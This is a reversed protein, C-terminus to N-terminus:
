LFACSPSEEKLIGSKGFALGTDRIEELRTLAESLLHIEFDFAIVCMTGDEEPDPHHWGNDTVTDLSICTLGIKSDFMKVYARIRDGSPFVYIFETGVMKKAEEITMSM